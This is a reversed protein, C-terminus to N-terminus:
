SAATPVPTCRLYCGFAPGFPSRLSYSAQLRDSGSRPSPGLFANLVQLFDRGRLFTARRIVSTRGRVTRLVLLALVWQGFM